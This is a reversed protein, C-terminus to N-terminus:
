CGRRRIVTAVMLLAAAASPLSAPEPVSDLVTPETYRAVGFDDLGFGDTRSNNLWQVSGISNSGKIGVFFINGDQHSGSFNASAGHATQITLSGGADNVDTIFFYLSDATTTLELKTIDNSDLWKAGGSTTNYRGSFPTDSSNLISFVNGGTGGGTSGLGGAMTSFTGIDTILSTYPGYGYNEFTTTVDAVAGIGYNATIWAEREATANAVSTASLITIVDARASILSVAFTVLVYVRKM